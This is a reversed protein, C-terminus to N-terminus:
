QKGVKGRFYRNKAVYASCDYRKGIEAFSMNHNDHLDVVTQCNIDNRHPGEPGAHKKQAGAAVKPKEKNQLLENDNKLGKKAFYASKIAAIDAEAKATRPKKPEEKKEEIRIKTDSDLKMVGTTGLTDRLEQPTCKIIIEM